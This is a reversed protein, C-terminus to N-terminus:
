IMRLRKMTYYARSIRKNAYEGFNENNEEKLLTWLFWLVDQTFQHILIDKRIVNIDINRDYCHLFYREFDEGINSELFFAAIDFIPTNMGSYEWDIFYASNEKILINEPVLDNHCPVMDVEKEIYIDKLFLFFDYIEKIKTNFRHFSDTCRLLGFYRDFEHYVNFKNSLTFSSNHLQYLKIAIAKLYEKNKINTHNLSVSSELYETVKVGTNENFYLTKVNYGYESAINSNYKEYQRSVICETRKGPIRVVYSNNTTNVLFNKNTMGGLKKISKIDKGLENSFINEIIEM